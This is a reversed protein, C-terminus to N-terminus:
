LSCCSLRFDINEEAQVPRGKGPQLFRITFRHRGGSVEAFWPADSPILIRVLQYPIGADLNQQYLGQVATRERPEASSRMLKLVLEVAQRVPDLKGYWREQDAHRTEVSQELWYHYGPLDFDCTGGPISVRQRIPTLFDDERLEQGLQGSICHLNRGVRELARLITKLRDHDVEPNQLLPDLNGIAREVEKILETKLDSRGFVDLIEMLTGIFMRSDWASDAHLFHSAQSFLHELRLIVRVRENLPHEYITSKTV